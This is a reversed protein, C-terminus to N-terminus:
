RSEASKNEELFALREIVRRRDDKQSSTQLYHRYYKIADEYQGLEDKILAASLYLQAGRFGRRLPADIVKDAEDLRKEARLLAALNLYPETGEPAVEIAKRFYEEAVKRDGERMALIGLNNYAKAYNKNYELIRRFYFTAEKTNGESMALVGLNNLAEINKPQDALVALYLKKAEESSGQEAARIASNYNTMTREDTMRKVVVSSEPGPAVPTAKAEETKEPKSASKQPEAEPKKKPENKAMRMEPGPAKTRGKKEQETETMVEAKRADQPPAVAFKPFAEKGPAEPPKTVPVEPVARPPAPPPPPAATEKQQAVQLSSPGQMRYLNPLFLVLLIACAVTGVIVYFVWRSRRPPGEDGGGNRYAPRKREDQAKKLADLIVSM